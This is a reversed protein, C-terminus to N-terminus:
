HAKTWRKGGFKPNRCEICGKPSGRCKSCGLQLSGGGGCKTGKKEGSKGSGKKELHKEGKDCTKAVKGCTKAVVPAAAPRKMATAAKKAAFADKVAQAAEDASLQRKKPAPGGDGQPTPADAGQPRPAGGGQPAEAVTAPKPGVDPRLVNPPTGPEVEGQQRSGGFSPLPVSAGYSNARKILVELNSGNPLTETHRGDGLARQNLASGMMQHMTNQMVQMFMQQMSQEPAQVPTRSGSRQQGQSRPNRLEFSTAVAQVDIPSVRPQVPQPKGPGFAQAHVLPHKQALENATPPLDTINELAAGKPYSKFSNSVHWYFDRLFGAGLSRAKLAGEQCVMILGVITARTPESPQRLGLMILFELLARTKAMYDVDPDLLVGWLEATLMQVCQTYNQPRYRALAGQPKQSSINLANQLKEKDDSAFNCKSLSQVLQVLHPGAVVVQELQSVLIACQTRSVEAHEADSVNAAATLVGPLSRARLLINQVDAM